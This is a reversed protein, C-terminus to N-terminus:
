AAADSNEGEKRSCKPAGLKPPDARAEVSRRLRQVQAQPPTPEGPPVGASTQRKASLRQLEYSRRWAGLRRAELGGTERRLPPKCAMLVAVALSLVVIGGGLLQRRFALSQPSSPEVSIHTGSTAEIVPAQVDPRLDPRLPPPGGASAPAATGEAVTTTPISESIFLRRAIQANSLGETLLELVERHRASLGDFSAPAGRRILAELLGRPFVMEGRSALEIARTLQEPPMGAHVFGRAGLKLATRAVELDPRPCLVLCAADPNQARVARLDSAVDEGNSRLVILSAPSGEASPPETRPGASAEARPAEEPRPQPVARYRRVWAPGPSKGVPGVSRHEAPPRRM